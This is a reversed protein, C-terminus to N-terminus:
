KQHPGCGTISLTSEQSRTTSLAGQPSSPISGPHAAQLVLVRGASETGQEAKPALHHAGAISQPGKLRSPGCNWAESPLFWSELTQKPLVSEDSAFSSVKNNEKIKRKKGMKCWQWGPAPLTCNKSESLYCPYVRPSKRGGTPPSILSEGKEGM